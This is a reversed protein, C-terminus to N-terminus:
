KRKGTRRSSALPTVGSAVLSSPRVARWWHQMSLLSFMIRRSSSWPALTLASSESFHVGSWAAAM